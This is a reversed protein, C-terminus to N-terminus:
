WHVRCVLSHEWEEAMAKDTSMRYKNRQESIENRKALSIKKQLGTSSNTKQTVRWNLRFDM